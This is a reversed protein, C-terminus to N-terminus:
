ARRTSRGVVTGGADSSEARVLGNRAVFDEDDRLVVEDEAADVVVVDDEGTVAAVEFDEFAVVDDNKMGFVGDKRFGLAEPAFPAVIAGLAERETGAAVVFAAVVDPEDSTGATTCPALSAVVGPIEANLVGRCFAVDRDDAGGRGASSLPIVLADDCGADARSVRM